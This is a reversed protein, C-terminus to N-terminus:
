DQLEAVVELRQWTTMMPYSLCAMDVAAQADGDLCWQPDALLQRAYAAVARQTSTLLTTSITM